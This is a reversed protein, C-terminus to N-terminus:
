VRTKAALELAAAFDDANEAVVTLHEINFNSIDSYSRQGERTGGIVSPIWKHADPDIIRDDKRIKGETDITYEIGGESYRAVIQPEEVVGRTGGVQPPIYKHNEEPIKKGDKYIDSGIKEYKIGGEEYVIRSPSEYKVEPMQWDAATMMRSMESNYFNVYSTLMNMRQELTEGEIDRINYLVDAAIREIEDYKAKQEAKETQM